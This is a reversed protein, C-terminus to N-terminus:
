EQVEPGLAASLISRLQARARSLRTGVTAVPVCLKSAIAGYSLREFERQEFTTRLEPSLQLLASRLQEGTIAAWWTPPPEADGCTPEEELPENRRANEARVLDIFRNALITYLWGRITSGPPLRGVHRIAREFTDQVLDHARNRDGRTLATARRLLDAHCAVLQDVLKPDPLSDNSATQAPLEMRTIATRSAARAPATVTSNSSLASSGPPSDLPDVLQPM